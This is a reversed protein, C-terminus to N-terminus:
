YEKDDDSYLDDYQEVGRWISPTCIGISRVDRERRLRILILRRM